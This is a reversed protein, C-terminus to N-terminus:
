KASRRRPRGIQRQRRRDPFAVAMAHRIERGDVVKVRHRRGWDKRAKVDRERLNFPLSRDFAATYLVIYSKVTASCRRVARFSALHRQLGRGDMPVNSGEIEFVAKLKWHQHNPRNQAGRHVGRRTAWVLDLKRRRRGVEVVFEPIAHFGKRVGKQILYAYLDNKTMFSDSVLFRTFSGGFTTPQHSDPAPPSNAHSGRKPPRGSASSRRPRCASRPQWMALLVTVPQPVADSV